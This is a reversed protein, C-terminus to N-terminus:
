VPVPCRPLAGHLPMFLVLNQLCALARLQVTALLACAGAGHPLAALAAHLAPPVPACRALV